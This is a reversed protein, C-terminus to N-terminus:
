PGPPRKFGAPPALKILAQWDLLCEEWLLQRNANATSLLQSKVQLLKDYFRYVALPDGIEGLSAQLVKPLHASRGKTSGSLASLYLWGLMADIIELEAHNLLKTTAEVVSLHRSLVGAVTKAVAEFDDLGGEKHLSMAKLPAGGSLALLAKGEEENVGQQALWALAQSEGPPAFSIQRCRSRITAPLRHPHASVLILVADGPPEELLKLLANAANLNLSDAPDIIVCHRSGIQPTKALQTVLQRIQDIKLAQAKEELVVEHLDPHTGAALLLCAKCHGCTVQTSNSENSNTHESQQCLLRYCFAQAFQNKGLGAQGAFLM